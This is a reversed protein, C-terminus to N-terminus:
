RPPSASWATTAGASRWWRRGSCRPTSRPRRSPPSPRARDQGRRARRQRDVQAQRRAVEGHGRPRGGRGPRLGEGERHRRARRGPARRRAGGEARGAHRARRPRRHSGHLGLRAGGVVPRPGLLGQAVGQRPTRLARLARRHRRPAQDPRGRRGRAGEVAHPEPARPQLLAVARRREARDVDRQRQARRRDAHRAGRRPPRGRLGGRRDDRRGRDGRRRPRGRGPWPADGGQPRGRLRDLDLRPRRGHHRARVRRDLLLARSGRVQPDHGAPRPPGDPGQAPLGPPGRGLPDQRAPQRPRLAARRGARLGRPQRRLARRDRRDDRHDARAGGRRGAGARRRVPGQPRRPRRHQDILRDPPTMFNPHLHLRHDARAGTRGRPAGGGPRGPGERAVRRGAWAGSRARVRQRVHAEWDSTPGRPNAWLPMPEPSTSSTTWSRSSCAWSPLSRATPSQRLNRRMRGTPARVGRSAGILRGTKLEHLRRLGDHSAPATDAVDVYQGGVMGEAGGHRRGARAVAALVRAPEGPQEALVLRFAEAYLATAPWSRWTRESACTARPGAAACTTM